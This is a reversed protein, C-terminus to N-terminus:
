KQVIDIVELAKKLEKVLKARIERIEIDSKDKYKNKIDETVEVDTRKPAEKRRSGTRSPAQSM